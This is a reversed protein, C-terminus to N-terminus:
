FGFRKRAFAPPLKSLLSSPKVEVLFLDRGDKEDLFTAYAAYKCRKECDLSKWNVFKGYNRDKLISRQKESQSNLTTLFLKSSIWEEPRSTLPIPSASSGRNFKGHGKKDKNYLSERKTKKASPEDQFDTLPGNPPSSSFEMLHLKNVEQFIVKSGDLSWSTGMITTEITTKNTSGGIEEHFLVESTEFNFVRVNHDSYTILVYPFFPHFEVTTVPFNHKPLRVCSNVNSEETLRLVYIGGKSTIIAIHSGDISVIVQNIGLPDMYDELSVEPKLKFTDTHEDIEISQIYSGDLSIRLAKTENRFHLSWLMNEPDFNSERTTSEVNVRKLKVPIVRGDACKVLRFFYMKGCTTYAFLKGAPSFCASDIVQNNRSKFEILKVLEKTEEPLEWIGIGRQEQVLVRKSSRSVFIRPSKPLPPYKRVMKPINRQPPISITLDCDVGASILRNNITELCLVDNTHMNRQHSKVWKDGTKGVRALSIVNPDVGSVYICNRDPSLAMCLIDARHTFIKFKLVGLRGDWFTVIGRSDGSAVTLDDIILVSWVITENKKSRGTSLRQIAHGREVDWVRVNDVSGTAIYQGCPSWSLCLIRGEQRDLVKVFQLEDELVQFINVFGDETVAGLLTRDPNVSMNWVPGSTAMYQRKMKRTVLDHEVVFGHLGCSFLRDHIWVLSEVSVKDNISELDYLVKELFPTHSMDWIEIAPTDGGRFLALKTREDNLRM